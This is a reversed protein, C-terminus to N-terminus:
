SACGQLGGIWGVLLFLVALLLSTVLRDLKEGRDSKAGRESLNSM